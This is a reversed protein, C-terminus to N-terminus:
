EGFIIMGHSSENEERDAEVSKIRTDLLAIM